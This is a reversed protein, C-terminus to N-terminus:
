QKFYDALFVDFSHTDADEIARQKAHSSQTQEAFYSESYVSYDRAMFAAKYEQSLALGWEGNDRNSETLLSLIQASPTQSPDDVKTKEIAVANSFAQTDNAKDLIQAVQEFSTFASLAWEKLTVTEQEGLENRRTLTLSPNRGDVVVRKLNAETEQYAEHDFVPSPQLLCTLLFVDLFYFQQADIGVASFPNVDLARVEIYSVGRDELADTPKEMSRAVQKPRIPSYLENEIQLINRNLQEYIGNEGASFQEYEESHTRIAKRVSGVYDHLNNYCIKLVSQQSNTYGLDSMRLSTAYPLYLTGKGTTKFDLNHKKHKLFSGCIAPSSGYLYPILWCLRRYNRILDFYQQSVFAQGNNQQNLNAYQQWFTDPLSFNFHIGAIAQMMAGYRNKLGVRYTRKMRGINSNGYDAIPIQNEGEIYCPMSMPWLAEDGIHSMVFSHIDALQELTTNPDTEPPTIFELLAESFDTTITDHTLASGLAEPHQLNSLKGQPTIRLAEREVGHKIDRLTRNFSTEQLAEVKQAFSLQTNSM